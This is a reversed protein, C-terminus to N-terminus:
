KRQIFVHMNTKYKKYKTVEFGLEDLYDFKTDISAEVIITTDDKLISSDSLATLVEKELEKLSIDRGFEGEIESSICEPNACWPCNISCGKLFITTRIGPGDHPSFHQINTIRVKM